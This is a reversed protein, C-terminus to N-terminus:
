GKKAYLVGLAEPKIVEYGYVNLGRILQGFSSPNPLTEMNTMQSAFTIAHKTGFIVNYCTDSGDTVSTYNNSKYLVIDDIRGIRGNRLVSTEDGSLSADKLDSKKILNAMWVPIVMWRGEEPVNQESLVSGCDVIYDLVNTKSLAVPSGTVGLGYSSSKVGATTGKNSAHASTYVNGLVDTDIAIKMQQSADDSWKDIFPIDSQRKDVADVGFAFYKGKDINLEVSANEPNEYTLNMGKYYTNITITPITRIIVKDGYKKIEGEYDTNAIEGFVTAAYFKVVLKASWIQPIFKNTGTSSYDPHGASTPFVAM